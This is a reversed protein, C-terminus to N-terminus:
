DIKLFLMIYQTVYDQIYEAKDKYFPKTLKYIKTGM